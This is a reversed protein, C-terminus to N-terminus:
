RRGRDHHYRGFRQEVVQRRELQRVRRAATCAGRRRRAARSPPSAGDTSREGHTTRQDKMRCPHGGPSEHGSPPGGTSRDGTCCPVTTAIELLHTAGRPPAAGSTFSVTIGSEDPTFVM